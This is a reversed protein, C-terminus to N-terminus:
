RAMAPMAQSEPAEEVEEPLPLEKLEKIKAKCRKIFEKGEKETLDTSSKKGCLKQMTLKRTAESKEPTYKLEGNETTEDACKEMYLNWLENWVKLLEEGSKQQIKQEMKPDPLKVTEASEANIEAGHLVEENEWREDEAYTGAFMSQFAMRLGQAEAVKKVMTAPKSDWLTEGMDVYQKKFRDFRKKIKGDGDKNGQYYENFDIFTFIPKTASRRKVTCYAGILNGRDKVSYAHKVQGDEIKFDDNQYVADLLHYDYEPDRQAAKRYGDRGIFISAPNGGYKVAWIERLFPNLGTAQGIQCLTTFEGETLDKGYINKIEALANQEQWIMQPSAVSMAKTAKLATINKSM